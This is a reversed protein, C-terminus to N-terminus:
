KTEGSERKAKRAALKALPTDSVDHAAAMREALPRLRVSGAQTGAGDDSTLDAGASDPKVEQRANEHTAADKRYEGTDSRAPNSRPQVPLADKRSKKAEVVVVPTASGEGTGMANRILGALVAESASSPPGELNAIAAAIRKVTRYVTTEHVKAASALRLWTAIQNTSYHNLHLRIVDDIHPALSLERGKRSIRPHNKAEFSTRSTQKPM